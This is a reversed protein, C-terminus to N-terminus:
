GRARARRSPRSRRRGRDRSSTRRRGGCRFTPRRPRRSGARGAGSIAARPKAAGSDVSPRRAQSSSTDATGAAIVPARSASKMSSFVPWIQSIPTISITNPRTSSSPRGAARRGPRDVLVPQLVRQGHAHALREGQLGAHRSRADRMVTPRKRRNLRSAAARMENRMLMGIVAPAMRNEPTSTIVSPPMGDSKTAGNM